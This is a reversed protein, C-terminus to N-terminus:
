NMPVHIYYLCKLSYRLRKRTMNLVVKHDRHSLVISNPEQYLLMTSDQISAIFTWLQDWAVRLLTCEVTIRDSRCVGAPRCSLPDGRGAAGRGDGVEELGGIEKYPCQSTWHDGKCFRCKLLQGKGQEKLKARMDDNEDKEEENTTIFQMTVEEAMITTATNPGPKDNKSLGFKAWVKRKAVEKSM